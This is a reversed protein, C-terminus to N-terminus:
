AIALSFALIRVLNSVQFGTLHFWLLHRGIFASSNPRALNEVFAMFNLDRISNHNRRYLDSYISELGM